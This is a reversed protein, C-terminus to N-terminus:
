FPLPKEEPNFGEDEKRAGVAAEYDARQAPSLPKNYSEKFLLPRGTKGSFKYEVRTKIVPRDTEKDVTWWERECLCVEIFNGIAEKAAVQPSEFNSVGANILFSKFIETRVRAAEPSTHEDVAGFKLYAVAGTRDEVVFEMYPTGKYEANDFSSKFAKIIVSHVGAGLREKRSEIETNKLNPFM